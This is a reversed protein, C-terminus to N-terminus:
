VAAQLRRAVAARDAGADLLVGVADVRGPHAALRAAEADTAFLVGQRDVSVRPRALGVVTMAQAPGTSALQIRAGLVLGARRAMAADVVLDHPGAPARGASLAYPTLAASSWGHLTIDHGGPGHLGAIEAPAGVDGVADRVGPVAAARAVLGADIRAREMLPVSDENETGQGVRAEQVGAVVLPAGAYREVKADATLGAQLLVGCAMVLAAAVVLAVFAAAFPGKRGRLGQFALRLM